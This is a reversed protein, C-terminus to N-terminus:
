KAWQENMGDLFTATKAKWDQQITGSQHEKELARIVDLRADDSIWDDFNPYM